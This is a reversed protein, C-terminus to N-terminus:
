KVRFNGAKRRGSTERGEPAVKAHSPALLRAVMEPPLPHGILYGQAAECGAALLFDAQAETEVGEALVEMDLTRALSIIASVIANDDPHTPTEAIFSRDIKLKSLPFRKLMSLSSYGTGFDDLALTVGLETLQTMSRVAADVDQMILSETIEIELCCPSLGSQALVDSVLTTLGCDQFQRASMNVAVKLAPLGADQWSRAQRCALELVKAGLELILGSEEALPIFSCPSIMGETPHRWRALAEVGFIKGTKLNKQPQYHLLIEGNEVACRLEESRRLKLSAEEAMDKTFLVAADRGKRKARYMALDAHAILQSARSGHEPFVAVGISAAPRLEHGAVLRPKAVSARLAEALPWIEEGVDPLVVVFEDGGIRAALGNSGIADSISAAVQKLLDDGADHGLSDNILKFNDLDLFAVAIRKNEDAAKRLLEQLDHDLRDRKLLGTLADHEALFRIREEAQLRDIAIGALRTVGAIFECFAPDPRRGFITLVLVAHLRGDSARIDVAKVYDSSSQLGTVLEEVDQAATAMEQVDLRTATLWSATPCGSFRLEKDGQPVFLATKVGVATEEILATVGGFFENVPVGDLIMGLLRAQVSMLRESTKRATIDRSAGVVGVIKGEADRLPVRSMMLWRDPGGKIACEDIGMDAVGTDIVRREIAAIPAALEPGHLDFDTLGIIDEVKALGNNRVVAENAYLFRGQLDKAYIYDPVHNIMAELWSYRDALTPANERLLRAADKM